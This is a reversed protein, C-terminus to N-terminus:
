VYDQFLQQMIWTKKNVKYWLSKAGKFCRSNNLKGTVLMPLKKMGSVNSGVMSTIREKSHGGGHYVERSFTLTKGPMM